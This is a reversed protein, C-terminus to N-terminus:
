MLKRALNVIKDTKDTYPPQMMAGSSGKQYFVPKFHSFTRFGAEGHYAGQGSKGVGGFPLNEQAVHFLTDNVTVGGSVTERLVKDCASKDSGFWYLALPREGKNVYQVAAEGGDSSLVPLIPGFIEEQMARIHPPPEVILTLPLKRQPHLANSSGVEVVKCGADRAEQVM